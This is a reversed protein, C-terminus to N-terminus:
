VFITRCLVNSHNFTILTVQSTEDTGDTTEGANDQEVDNKSDM